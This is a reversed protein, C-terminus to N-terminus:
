ELNGRERRSLVQLDHQEAQLKQLRKSKRRVTQELDDQVSTMIELRNQYTGGVLAPHTSCLINKYTYLESDDEPSESRDQGNNNDYVQSNISQNLKNIKAMQIQIMVRKREQEQTLLDARKQEEEKKQQDVKRRKLQSLMSEQPKARAGNLSLADMNRTMESTWIREAKVEVPTKARAEDVMGFRELPKYVWDLIEKKVVKKVLLEENILPEEYLHSAGGITSRVSQITQWQEESRDVNKEIDKVKQWAGPKQPEGKNVYKMKEYATDREEPELETYYHRNRQFRSVMPPLADLLRARHLETEWNGTSRRPEGEEIAQDPRFIDTTREFLPRLKVSRIGQSDSFGQNKNNDRKLHHYVSEQPQLSYIREQPEPIKRVVDCNFDLEAAKNLIQIEKETLYSEVPQKNNDYGERHAQRQDIVMLDEVNPVAPLPRRATYNGVDARTPIQSRDNYREYSNQRVERIGRDRIDDVNHNRNETQINRGRDRNVEVNHGRYEVQHNRGRDRHVEVNNGRDETQINREVNEYRRDNLNGSAGRRDNRTNGQNIEEDGIDTNKVRVEKRAKINETATKEIADILNWGKGTYKYWDNDTDKKTVASSSLSFEIKRLNYKEPLNEEAKLNILPIRLIAWERKDKENATPHEWHHHAFCHLHIIKEEKIIRVQFNVIGQQGEDKEIGMAKAREEATTMDLIYRPEEHNETSDQFIAKFESRTKKVFMRFAHKVDLYYSAMQLIINFYTTISINHQFHIFYTFNFIKTIM